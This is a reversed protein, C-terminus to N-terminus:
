GGSAGLYSRLDDVAAGARPVPAQDVGLNAKMWANIEMQTLPKQSLWYTRAPPKGPGKPHCAYCDFYQEPHERHAVLATQAEERSELVVPGLEYGDLAAFYSVVASGEDDTLGFTPMRVDLWPRLRMPKMLFDLFWEPQLKRGEGVLLPPANEIQDKYYKRIAGDRGDFTHCGNCNYYSVVERGHKLVSEWGKVDPLYKDSTKRDTRGGLFVMLARADEEAFGFQPMNQEIRETAYTRPTLVKNVTWAEWTPPIDLRDGFFLEEVHKDSFASLEVSVRSEGEMGNIWHCGFCGYRRILRAGDDIKKQDALRLRLAPDAPLTDRQRLTALYSTIARAEDHSLRLRPMRATPSYGRPDRIWHYMWRPDTKEAIRALNPATDMGVAVQSAFEDPKFGHCGLCGLTHTLREGDSVLQESGPDM